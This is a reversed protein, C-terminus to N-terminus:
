VEVVTVKATEMLWRHAKDRRAEEEVVHRRGNAVMEDYLEDERGPAMGSLFQHIDDDTLEMERGEFLADLAFGQRLVRRAELMMQTTYEQENTGQQDFFEEKSMHMNKLSAEFNSSMNELVFEYIEDPISGQLRDLIAYDM